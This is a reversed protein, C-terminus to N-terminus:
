GHVYPNDTAGLERLLVAAHVVVISGDNTPHITDAWVSTRQPDLWDPTRYVDGYPLRKQECFELLDM